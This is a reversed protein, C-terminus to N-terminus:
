ADTYRLIQACVLEPTIEQWAEECDPCAETPYCQTHTQAQISLQEPYGTGQHNESPDPSTASGFLTVCPQATQARLHHVLGETTIVLDAATVWQWLDRVSQAQITETGELLGTAWPPRPRLLRVDRPLLLVLQQWNRWGWDKMKYHQNVKVDPCILWYNIQRRANVQAQEEPTWTLPATKIRWRRDSVYPRQGQSRHALPQGQQQDIWWTNQWLESLPQPRGDLLIQQSHGTRLYQHWADARAMIDDGWGM